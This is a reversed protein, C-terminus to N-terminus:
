TIGPQIAVPLAVRARMEQYVPIGVEVSVELSVCLAFRVKNLLEGADAACNVKCEFRAGDVFGVAAEGELVEHQLTGRQAAKDHVSNVRKVQLEVQPPTLWLKARRYAQHGPNIPSFWALTVTLRRWAAKGSLSPPLPASFVLAEDAGLEGVGIL